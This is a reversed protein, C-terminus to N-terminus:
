INLIYVKSPPPIPCSSFLIAHHDINLHKFRLEELTRGVNLFEVNLMYKRQKTNYGFKSEYKMNENKGEVMWILRASM